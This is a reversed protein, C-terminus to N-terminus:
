GCSANLCVSVFTCLFGTPHTEYEALEAASPWECMIRELSLFAVWGALSLSSDVHKLMLWLWFNSFYHM